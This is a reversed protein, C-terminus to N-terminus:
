RRKQPLRKGGSAGQLDGGASRSPGGQHPQQQRDQALRDKAARHLAAQAQQQRQMVAARQARARREESSVAGNDPVNAPAPAAKAVGPKGGGRGDKSRNGAAAAAASASTKGHVATVSRAKGAGRPAVGAPRAALPAPQGGRAARGNIPGVQSRNNSGDPTSSLSCPTITLHPEEVNEKGGEDRVM